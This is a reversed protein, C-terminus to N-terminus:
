NENDSVQGDYENSTAEHDLYKSVQRRRKDYEDCVLQITNFKQYASERIVTIKSTTEYRALLDVYRKSQEDWQVTGAACFM